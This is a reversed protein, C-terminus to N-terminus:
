LARLVGRTLEAHVANRHEGDPDSLDSVSYPERAGLAASPLSYEHSHITCSDASRIARAASAPSPRWRARRRVGDEPARPSTTVASRAPTELHRCLSGFDECASDGLALAQGGSQALTLSM